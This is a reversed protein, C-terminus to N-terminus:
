YDPEYFQIPEYLDKIILALDSYFYFGKIIGVLPKKRQSNLKTPNIM